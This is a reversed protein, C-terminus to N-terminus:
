QKKHVYIICIYTDMVCWQLHCHNMVLCVSTSSLLSWLDGYWTQTSRYDNLWNAVESLKHKWIQIQLGKRGASQPSRCNWDSKLAGAYITLRTTTVNRVQSHQLQVCCAIVVFHSASSSCRDTRICVIDAQSNHGGDSLVNVRAMDLFIKKLRSYLNKLCHSYVLFFHLLFCLLRTHSFSKDYQGDM